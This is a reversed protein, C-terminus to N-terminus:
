WYIEEHAERIVGILWRGFGGRLEKKEGLRM